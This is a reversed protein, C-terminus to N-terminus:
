LVWSEPIREERQSTNMKYAGKQRAPACEPAAM